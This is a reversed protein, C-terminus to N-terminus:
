FKTAIEMRATRHKKTLNISKKSNKYVYAKSRMYLQVTSCSVNLDCKDIIKRSNLKEGNDNIVYIARKIRLSKSKDIKAKPGSKTKNRTIRRCLISQM